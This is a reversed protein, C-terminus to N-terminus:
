KPLCVRAFSVERGQTSRFRKVFGALVEPLLRHRATNITGLRLEASKRGRRQGVGELQRIECRPAVTRGSRMIQGSADGPAQAEPV